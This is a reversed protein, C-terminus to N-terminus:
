IKKVSNIISTISKQETKKKNKIIIKSIIRTVVPVSISVCVYKNSSNVFLIWIKKELPFFHKIKRRKEGIVWQRRNAYNILATRDLIIILGNEIATFMLALVRTISNINERSYYTIVIMFKYLDKSITKWYYEGHFFFRYIPLTIIYLICPRITKIPNEIGDARRTVIIVQSTIRRYM